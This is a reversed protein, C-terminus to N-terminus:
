LPPTWTAPVSEQDLASKLEQEAKVRSSGVRNIEVAPGDGPPVQAALKRVTALDTEQNDILYRNGDITVRLPRNPTAPKTASILRSPNSGTSSDSGGNGSGKGGPGFGFRPGFQWLAVIAALIAGGAILKGSQRRPPATKRMEQVAHIHEQISIPETPTMDTKRWRRYLNRM